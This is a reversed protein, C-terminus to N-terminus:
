ALWTEWVWEFHFIQEEDEYQISNIRYPIGAQDFATQVQFFLPDNERKTFLDATGQIVQGLLRTAAWRSGAQVDEAWVIRPFTDDMPKYHGVNEMVTLLASKVNDLM